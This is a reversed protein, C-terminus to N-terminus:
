FLYLVDMDYPTIDLFSEHRQQFRHPGSNVFLGM